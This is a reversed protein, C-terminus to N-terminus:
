WVSAKNYTQFIAKKKQYQLGLANTGVETKKRDTILDDVMGHKYPSLLSNPFCINLGYSWEQMNWHLRKSAITANHNQFASKSVDRNSGM